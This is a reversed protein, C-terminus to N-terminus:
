VLRQRDYQDPRQYDNTTPRLSTAKVHGSTSEPYVNDILPEVKYLTSGDLMCVALIARRASHYDMATSYILGRNNTLSALSREVDQLVSFQYDSIICSPHAIILLNVIFSLVAVSVSIYLLINRHCFFTPIISFLYFLLLFGFRTYHTRSKYCCALENLPKTINEGNNIACRLHEIQPNIADRIVIAFRHCVVILFAMTASQNMGDVLYIIAVAIIGLDAVDLLETILM